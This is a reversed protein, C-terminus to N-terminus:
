KDNEHTTHLLESAKMSLPHLLYSDYLDKVLENEHCFEINKSIGNISEIRKPNKIEIEKKATLPEGGGGICGDPCAMVEIFDYNNINPLVVQINKLGYVVLVNIINDGIKFSKETITGTVKIDYTGKKPSNGTLLYHVTSLTASMVGGSRGFILGSKSGSALMCDFTGEKQSAVEINCERIMMALERTTIIYDTDENIIESKKATCPAVVVSIIDEEIENMEKFYSKILSSMIGIPSKVTSLNPLLKRHFVKVYKTWAPCCSTFMPLNQNHKIRDVLESAEEMITVDAGFTVDFVYTFGLSRLISPLINELSTGLPLGLEEGLTVRVAPAISIAVIKDTDKILNLVKKYDYKEKLAGVPCNMICQGCNICTKGDMSRKEKDIGTLETCINLCLGCSICKEEIRQISPNDLDIKVKPNNQM